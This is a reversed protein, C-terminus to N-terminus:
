ADLAALLSALTRAHRSQFVRRDASANIWHLHMAEILVACALFAERRAAPVVSEVRDRGGPLDGFSFWLFALEYGPPYRGAWEWDILTLGGDPRRIVNRATLDGHAFTWPQM